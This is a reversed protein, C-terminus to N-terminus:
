RIAPGLFRCGACVPPTSCCCIFFVYLVAPHISAVRNCSGVENLAVAVGNTWLKSILRELSLRKCAPRLVHALGYFSFVLARQSLIVRGDCRSQLGHAGVFASEVSNHATRNRDVSGHGLLLGILLKADVGCPVLSKRYVFVRQVHVVYEM